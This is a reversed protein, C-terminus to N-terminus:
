EEETRVENHRDRQQTKRHKSYTCVRFEKIRSSHVRQEHTDPPTNAINYPTAMTGYPTSQERQKSNGGQDDNGSHNCTDNKTLKIPMDLHIAALLSGRCLAACRRSLPQNAIIGRHSIVSYHQCAM